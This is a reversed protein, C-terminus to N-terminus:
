TPRVRPPGLKEDESMAVLCRIHAFSIEDGYRLMYPKHAVVRNGNLWTGNTSGQDVLSLRLGTRRILAHSGSVYTDPIQVTAQDSRGVLITDNALPKSAYAFNLFTRPRLLLQHECCVTRLGKGDILVVGTKGALEKAARTYRGTTICIFDTARHLVKSALLLQIPQNGVSGQYMKCQIAVIRSGRVALVDVGDDGTPKTVQGGYGLVEVLEGIDREFERWSTM